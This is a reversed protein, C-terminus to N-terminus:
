IQSRLRDRWARARLLLIVAVPISLGSDSGAPVPIAGTATMGRQATATGVTFSPADNHQNRQASAISTAFLSLAATRRVVDIM